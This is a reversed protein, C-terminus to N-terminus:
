SLRHRYTLAIEKCVRLQLLLMQILHCLKEYNADQCFDILYNVDQGGPALVHVLGCLGNACIVLEIKYSYGNIEGCSLIWTVYGGTGGGLTGYIDHVPKVRWKEEQAPNLSRNIQFQKVFGEDLQPTVM